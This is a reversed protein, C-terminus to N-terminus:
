DGHMVRRSQYGKEYRVGRPSPRHRPRPGTELRVPHPGSIATTALRSEISSSGSSRDARRSSRSRALRPWSRDPSLELLRPSRAPAAPTRGAPRDRQEEGQQERQDKGRGSRTTRRSTAGRSAAATRNRRGRCETSDRRSARSCCRGPRRATRPRDEADGQDPELALRHQEVDQTHDARRMARAVRNMTWSVGYPIKASAAVAAPM